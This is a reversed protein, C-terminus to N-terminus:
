QRDARFPRPAAGPATKVLSRSRPLRMMRVSKKMGLMMGATAIKMIIEPQDIGIGTPDHPDEM